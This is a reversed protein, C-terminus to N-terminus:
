KKIQKKIENNYVQRENWKLGRYKPNEEQLKRRARTIVDAQTLKKESYLKLLAFATIQNINLGLSEIQKKWYYAVLRNDDDQLKPDKIFLAEVENQCNFIQQLKTNM